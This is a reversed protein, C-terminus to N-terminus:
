RGGRLPKVGEWVFITYGGDEVSGTRHYRDYQVVVGEGPDLSGGQAMKARYADDLRALTITQQNGPVVLEM